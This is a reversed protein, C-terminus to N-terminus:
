DKPALKRMVEDLNFSAPRQRMPYVWVVNAVYLGVPAQTGTDIGLFGPIHAGRYQAESVVPFAAVIM